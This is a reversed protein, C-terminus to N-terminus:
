RGGVPPFAFFGDLGLAASYNSAPWFISFNQTAHKDGIFHRRGLDAATSTDMDRQELPPTFTHPAAKSWGKPLAWPKPPVVTANRPLFQFGVARLFAYIGNMSGRQSTASSAIAVGGGDTTSMFFSDDGLLASLTTPPVGGLKTAAGFGVLLEPAAPSGPGAGGVVSRQQVLPLSLLEALKAAAWLETPSGDSMVKVSNPLRGQALFSSSSSTTSALMVPPSSGDAIAVPALMQAFFVVVVMAVMPVTGKRAKVKMAHRWWRWTRKLRTMVM